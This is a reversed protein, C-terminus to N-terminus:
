THHIVVAAALTAVILAGYFAGLTISWVVASWGEGRTEGITELFSASTASMFFPEIAADGAAVREYLKRFLREAHLFYADLGWFIVAPALASLALTCDRSDVAFGLFAGVITVAWGKVLFSDNGLRAIVVQLM